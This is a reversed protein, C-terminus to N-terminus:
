FPQQAQEVLLFLSANLPTLGEMTRLLSQERLEAYSLGIEEQSSGSQHAEFRSVMM